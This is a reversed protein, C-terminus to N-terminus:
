QQHYACSYAQSHGAQSFFVCWFVFGEEDKSVGLGSYICLRILMVNLASVYAPLTATSLHTLTVPFSLATYM